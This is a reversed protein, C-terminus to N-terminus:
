MNKEYNHYNHWTGPHEPINRSTGSHEMNWIKDVGTSVIWTQLEVLRCTQLDVLRCTQLDALRCTQLDALRCTQLDALRCTQLDATQLHRVGRSKYLWLTTEDFLCCFSLLVYFNFSRMWIIFPPWMDYKQYKANNKCSM